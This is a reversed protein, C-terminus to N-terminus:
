KKIVVVYAAGGTPHGGVRQQLDIRYVEGVKAGPIAAVELNLRAGKGPPVKPMTLVLGKATLTGGGRGWYEGRPRVNVAIRPRGIQGAAEAMKAMAPDLGLDLIERAGIQRMRVRVEIAAAFGLVNKAVFDLPIAKGAGGGGPTGPTGSPDPPPMPVIMMNKWVINNDRVVDWPWVIPDLTAAAFPDDGTDVIAFLCCHEPEAAGPTWPVSGGVVSVPAGGLTTAPVDVSATGIPHWDWHPMGGTPDSWYIHVQAGSVPLTDANHVRVWLQNPQGRVPSEHFTGGSNNCWLDPSLYLDVGPPAVLRDDGAYDKMWGDGKGWIPTVRWYTVNTGYIGPVTSPAHLYEGWPGWKSQILAPQGGAGLSWVRGTHTITNSADRYCIVDGVRVNPVFVQTGNDDLIHQVDSGDDIWCQRPNFTFAWCNYRRTPLLTESTHNLHIYEVPTIGPYDALAQAQISAIQSATLEGYLVDLHSHNILTGASTVLTRHSM